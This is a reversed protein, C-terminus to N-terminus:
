FELRILSNYKESKTQILKEPCFKHIGIDSM